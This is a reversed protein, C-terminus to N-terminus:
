VKSNVQRMLESHRSELQHVDIQYPDKKSALLEHARKSFAAINRIATKAVQKMEAMEGNCHLLIDCGAQIAMESRNAIDGSLASMTLDDSMLLGEFGIEERIIRIMKPSITAPFINDIKEFLVHASMGLPLSNLEKYVKFDDEKLESFSKKCIPLSIHSDNRTSGHGPIHKLVPFVGSDLCGNAVAKAIEIIKKPDSGYCRNKLIPHTTLNAIDGVPVCNTDIGIELLEASILQYRIMMAEKALELSLNQCIELPPSWTKWISPNLREVRGGEQDVLVVAQHGVVERLEKTLDSIQNKNKLNREFLIFGFPKVETFFDREESTLKYGSCGFIFPAIM